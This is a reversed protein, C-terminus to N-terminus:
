SKGGAKKMLGYIAKHAGRKGPVDITKLEIIQFFPNYLWRLEEESSFYLITGLPTKRFRGQGGFGPDDESFSITLYHGEPNLLERVKRVYLDRQDPYIHHLVEYDYAFDFMGLENLDDHIIDATLLRCEINSADANRRAKQIATPSLDVGTVNFGHRALYVAYHGLGCGLDICRCPQIMGSEILSVLCEPPKEFNWPIDKEPVTQYISELDVSANEDDM